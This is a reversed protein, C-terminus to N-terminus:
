PGIGLVLAGQEKAFEQDKRELEALRERAWKVIGEASCDEYGKDEADGVENLRCRWRLEMALEEYAKTRASVHLGYKHARAKMALLWSRMSEDGQSDRSGRDIRMTKEIERVEKSATNIQDQYVKIENATLTRLVYAGTPMDTEDTEPIRGSLAQQARYLNIHQVLLTTLNTLDNIKRLDYQDRYAHELTQWRDLEEASQLTIGGGGGPLEVRYDPM